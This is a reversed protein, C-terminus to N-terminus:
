KKEKSLRITKIEFPKMKLRMINGDIEMKSLPREILDTEVATVVGEPVEILADTERGFMEVLRCVLDRGFYGSEKKLSTLVINEPEVRMFSGTPKLPGPHNMALHPFLPSNLELGRRFTLSEQWSREHPYLSYLTEHKGRDAEPDPSTAGHILSIRMVNDKVDFGYRSDNLLSLGFGGSDDTLEIWKLAPVETGDTPRAVFGFPIEFDARGSWAAAPFAAKVMLNREQWNIRTLCDLRPLNSYLMIDQVFESSRFANKVRVIGRVPGNEVVEVAAGNEGLRAITQKLDLEWASMSKPEDTIIQLVNAPSALAERGGNKEFLSKLWGTTPDLSVRMFRNELAYAGVSLDTSFERQAGAKLLRYSKYGLAPIGEAIFCITRFRRNGDRREKLVQFPVERSQDDILTIATDPEALVIETEVPDTRRWSLPNFIILPLGEGRTDIANAIAELSFGLARKGREYADQYYEAAEEYVPGISSGDLIDHFQNRLIIKWAEDLDREPYYDRYGPFLALSSFKEASLLLNELRRNHKKTEVQTTYCAPFTFNLEKNVVPYSTQRSALRRFYEEPRVFELKPHDRNRRFKQIAEIDTARPGGGHDGAGYLIMFDSLGASGAAGVLLDKIGDKLDVLYWGPPVYSLVRSGDAGEWWFVPAEPPACREFVYNKIGAKALIQPLQFSHGFSDPNWGVRVDVGFKELFYRKGYLLQRALSEGDPMNLDPEAWMGGVPIWTGEKVKQKIRQFLEPYEKEIAEYVATQSQAFTLGPLRDMQALTGWFTHPAIDHVTEEWRWLWALDIHAHGILFATLDRPKQLPTRNQKEQSITARAALLSISFLAATFFLSKKM